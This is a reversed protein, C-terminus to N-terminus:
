IMPSLENAVLDRLAYKLEGAIGDENNARHSETSLNKFEVSPEDNVSTVLRASTRTRKVNLMAESAPIPIPGHAAHNAMEFSPDESASLAAKVIMRPLAMDTHSYTSPNLDNIAPLM